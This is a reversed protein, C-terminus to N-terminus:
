AWITLPVGSCAESWVGRVAAVRGVARRDFRSVYDDEVEFRTVYGAFSHSKANWDHAIQEAYRFNLLPYFIQQEPLRPPFGRLDAEYVLRSKTMCVPRFLIM